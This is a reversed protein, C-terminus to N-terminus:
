RSLNSIYFPLIQPQTQYRSLVPNKLMQDFVQPTVANKGQALLNGARSFEGNEMAIGCLAFIRGGVESGLIDLAKLEEGVQKKRGMQILLLLRENSLVIDSPALAMARDMDRLALDFAGSERLLLARRYHLGESPTAAIGGSYFDLAAKKDGEREKLLGALEWGFPSGARNLNVEALLRRAGELDGSKFALIAGEISERPGTRPTPTPTPKPMTVPVSLPNNITSAGKAADRQQVFLLWVIGGVILAALPFFIVMLIQNQRYRPDQSLNPFM